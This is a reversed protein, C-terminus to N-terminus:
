AWGPSQVGFQTNQTKEVHNRRTTRGSFWMGNKVELRTRNRPAVVSNYTLIEMASSFGDGEQDYDSGATYFRRVVEDLPSNTWVVVNTGSAPELDTAVVLWVSDTGEYPAFSDDFSFIEVHNTFGEPLHVTVETSDGLGDPPGEVSVWLQSTSGGMSEMGEIVIPVSLATAQEDAELYNGYFEQPILKVSVQIRAPDYLALLAAIEGASYGGAYLDPYKATVFAYPDYGVPSAVAFIVKDRDNLILIERTGPDELLYIQYVPCDYEVYGPLKKLLAYPMGDQDFPLADPFGGQLFPGQMPPAIPLVRAQQVKFWEVLDDV